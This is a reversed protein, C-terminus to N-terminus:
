PVMTPLETRRSKMLLPSLWAFKLTSLKWRGLPRTSPDGQWSLVLTEGEADAEAEPDGVLPGFTPESFSSYRGPVSHAAALGDGDGLGLGEGKGDSEITGEIRGPTVGVGLGLALAEVVAVGAGVGEV